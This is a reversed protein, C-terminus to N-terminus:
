GEIELKSRYCLIHRFMSGTVPTMSEIFDTGHQMHMTFRPKDTEPCHDQPEGVLFAGFGGAAPPLIELM